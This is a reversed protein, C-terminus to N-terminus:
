LQAGHLQRREGDGHPLHHREARNGLCRPFGGSDPRYRPRGGRHCALRLRPAQRRAAGPRADGRHPGGGRQGNPRAFAPPHRPKPPSRDIFATLNRLKYHAAAMFAEWCSGEQLEGDGLSVFVRGERHNLRNALALGVSAPFGQGLSGTALEALPFDVNAPHGQLRSGLKRLTLLEEKPIAGCEALTAYWVPCIHGNSLIFRDLSEWLPNEPRFRMVRFYLAAFVDAMGLSGGPHGSGAAHTMRVVNRRINRAHEHLTTIETMEGSPFLAM